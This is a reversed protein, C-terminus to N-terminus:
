LCIVVEADFAYIRSVKHRETAAPTSTRIAITMVNKSMRSRFAVPMVLVACMKCRRVTNATFVPEQVAM